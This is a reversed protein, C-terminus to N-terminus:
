EPLFLNRAARQYKAETLATDLGLTALDDACPDLRIDKLLSLLKVYSHCADCCEGQVAAESSEGLLNVPKPSDCNTCKARTAYWQSNCLSCVLYRVGHTPDGTHVVSVMPHSGCVPCVPADTPLDAQKPLPAHSAKATWEVQLAAAIFPAAEPHSLENGLLLAQAEAQWQAQDWMQLQEILAQQEPATVKGLMAQLVQQWYAWSSDAQWHTIALDALEYSPAIIIQPVLEHQVEALHTCFSLWQALPHSPILTHFRQARQEFVTRAEPLLLRPAATSAVGLQEAAVLPTTASVLSM